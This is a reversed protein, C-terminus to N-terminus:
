QIQLPSALASAARSRLGRWEVEVAKRTVLENKMRSGLDPVSACRQKLDSIVLSETWLLAGPIANAIYKGSYQKRASTSNELLATRPIREAASPPAGAGAIRVRASAAAYRPAAPRGQKPGQHRPIITLLPLEVM